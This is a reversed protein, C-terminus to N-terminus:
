TPAERDRWLASALVAFLPLAVVHFRANGFTLLTASVFCALVVALSRDGRRRALAVIACGLTAWYALDCVAGMARWAPTPLARSFFVDFEWDDYAFWRSLKAPALTVIGFPRHLLGERVCDLARADAEREVGEWPIFRSGGTADEGLGVCLNIAGSTTLSSVGMSARNRVVWPVVCIAVGLIFPAIRRPAHSRPRRLGLVVGALALALSAERVLISLGCLLGAWLWPWTSHSRMARVLLLASGVTLPLALNESVLLGPLTLLSPLLAVIATAVWAPRRGYLERALRHTLVLTAAGLLVSGLAVVTDGLGVRYFLSMWAPWGPVWFATPGDHTQYGHGAALSQALDRYTVADFIVVKPGLLVWTARLLLGLIVAGVAVRELTTLRQSPRDSQAETM